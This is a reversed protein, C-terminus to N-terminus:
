FFIEHVIIVSYYEYRKLGETPEFSLPKRALSNEHATRFGIQKSDISYYSHTRALSPSTISCKKTSCQIWFMRHDVSTTATSCLVLEVFVAM